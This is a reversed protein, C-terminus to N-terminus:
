LPHGQLRCTNGNPEGLIWLACTPCYHAFIRPADLPGISPPAADRLQVREPAAAVSAAAVHEGELTVDLVMGATIRHRDVGAKSLLDQEITLSREADSGALPVATLTISDGGFFGGYSVVEHVRLYTM